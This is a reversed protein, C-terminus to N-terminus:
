TGDEVRRGRDDLGAAALIEPPVLETPFPVPNSRRPVPQVVAVRVERRWALATPVVAVAPPVLGGPFGAAIGAGVALLPSVVRVSTLSGPVARGLAVALALSWLSWAIPGVHVGDPSSLGVLAPAAVLSLLLATVVPSPGTASPLRRLWRGLWPGALAALSAAAVVVLTGWLASRPSAAAVGLWAVTCSLLILRAWRARALLMGAVAVVTLVLLGGAGLMASSAALPTDGMVVLLTGSVSTATALAAVTSPARAVLRMIAAALRTPPRGRETRTLRGRPTAGAVLAVVREV